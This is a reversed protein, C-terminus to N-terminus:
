FRRGCRGYGGFLWLNNSSDTCGCASYRSGPVSSDSAEGINGYVGSQGTRNSGSMWMWLSGDWMWLDNLTDGRVDVGGFLWLRDLSDVWSVASQRAPPCNTPSPVRLTGYSGADNFGSSGSIWVWSTGNFSWLDNLLGVSTPSSSGIGGFLYMGTKTSWSVGGRRSGPFNTANAM